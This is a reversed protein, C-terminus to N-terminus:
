VFYCVIGLFGVFLFFGLFLWGFLFRFVMFVFKIRVLIYNSLFGLSFSLLNLGFLKFEDFDRVFIGEFFNNFLM